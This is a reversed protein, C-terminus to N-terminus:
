PCGLKRRGAGGDPLRLMMGATAPLVAAAPATLESATRGTSCVTEAEWRMGETTARAIRLVTPEPTVQATVSPATDTASDATRAEM